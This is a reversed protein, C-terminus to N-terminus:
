SMATSSKAVSFFYQLSFVTKSLARRTIIAARFGLANDRCGLQHFTLILEQLQGRVELCVTTHVHVSHVCLFACGCLLCIFYFKFLVQPFQFFVYFHLAFSGMNQHYIHVHSFSDSTSVPISHDWTTLVIKSVPHPSGAHTSIHQSSWLLWEAPLFASPKQTM